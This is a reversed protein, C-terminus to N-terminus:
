GVIEEQSLALICSDQKKHRDLLYQKAKPSCGYKIEDMEEIDDATALRYSLEITPSTAISFGRLDLEFILLHTVRFIRASIFKLVKALFSVIGENSIVKIARNVANLM